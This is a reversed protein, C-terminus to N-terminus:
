EDDEQVYTAEFTGIRCITKMDLDELDRSRTNFVIENLGNGAPIAELVEKARDLGCDVIPYYDGPADHAWVEIPTRLCQRLARISARREVGFAVVIFPPMPASEFEISMRQYVFEDGFLERLEDDNLLAQTVLERLDIM